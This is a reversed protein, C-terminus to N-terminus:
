RNVIAVLLSFPIPVVLLFWIQWADQRAMADSTELVAKRPDDPDYHVTVQAGATYKDALREILEQGTVRPPGFQVTDGEYDRGGVEYRYDIVLRFYTMYGRPTREIRSWEVKGPVTPWAGSARARAENWRIRAAYFAAFPFYTAASLTFAELFTGPRDFFDVFAGLLWGIALMAAGAVIPGAAMVWAWFDVAKPDGPQPVLRDFSVVMAGM